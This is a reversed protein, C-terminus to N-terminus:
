CTRSSVLDAAVSRGLEEYAQRRRSRGVSVELVRLGALPGQLRESLGEPGVRSHAVGHARCIAALDTGTPTAYVREFAEAYAADGQELQSFIAGGDDNVVVITLDPRPESPGMLLGNSGHLFTLDGMLAITPRGAALAAGMATSITGDIGALGRNAIVHRTSSDPEAVIDLDRVASSAGVMLLGDASARWVDRAVSWGGERGDASARCRQAAISDQARWAAHWSDDDDARPWSIAEVCRVNPGPITPFNSRDGVHVIELDPRSLLATVPRTLTSHGLSIVREIDGALPSHALLLSGCQLARGRRLGSSPEAIVPWGTAELSSLDLGVDASDGAIVITRPGTSLATVESPDPPSVAIVQTSSFIWERPEILPEHLELNLHAPGAQVVLDLPSLQTRIGPFIDPQTTTQSAGTGRLSAPRDATVAILPVRAHRAELMAPHLNAVATGSTTLAPVPRGSVKALGLALFGAEREDVRVHLRVLGQRDAAHFALAIPGSRSGPSLVVEQCGLALLRNVLEVAIESASARGGSM